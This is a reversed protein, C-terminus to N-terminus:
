VAINLVYQDQYTEASVIIKENNKVRQRADYASTFVKKIPQVLEFKCDPVEYTPSDLYGDESITIKDYLGHEVSFDQFYKMDHKELIPLLYKTLGLQELWYLNIHSYKGGKNYYGIFGGDVALIMTRLEESMQEIGGYLACVLALTGFNYKENFRGNHFNNPNVRYPNNLFTRHNDFCLQNQGVSLDVFIPTKWGHDIKEENLWLGSNFDYFGGIEVGFLTNLRKCSFLSDVDDTLVLYYDEANIETWWEPLSNLLKQKVLSKNRDFEM